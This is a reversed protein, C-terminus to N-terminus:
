GSARDRGRATAPPPRDIVVAACRRRGPLGCQRARGLLADRAPTTLLGVALALALVAATLELLVHAYAVVILLTAAWGLLGHGGGRM